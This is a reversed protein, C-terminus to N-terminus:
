ELVAAVPHGYLNPGVSVVALRAHVAGFFEELTTAGGHHPVKLVEARVAGPHDELLAQQSPQEADGPFLVTSTGVAVRLIMSDNNADSNTGSYCRDPGLVDLRVDGVRLATGDPPHRFPVGSAEVARIFTVYFPSDGGCGSDVVLGVRFRRLVAPLGDVHDAHPHTAVM